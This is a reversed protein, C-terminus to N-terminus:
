DFEEEGRESAEDAGAEIAAADQVAQAESTEEGLHFAAFGPLVQQNQAMGLVRGFIPSVIPREVNRLADIVRGLRQGKQVRQGLEVESVLLGGANARVWQSDYFIPQPEDEVAAAASIGLHHLLLDIAAVAAGIEQMQLRTPAGVEFTFAPIGAEVAAVRLMGKSGPSHLVVTTGVGRTLALVAPNRLDARIQPLNSRDFSGTHFDVLADCHRVVGEFFASAIRSAMSGRRSGPFFRNLDRRDPLYRTGRQFGYLNLVPVGVVTGSIREPQVANLVRRVIEVGNLEDGHVGAVLCLVPGPQAGHVVSVPVVQDGSGVFQGDLVARTGPLVFRGLLNLPVVLPPEAVTTAEIPALPPRVGVPTPAQVPLPFDQGNAAAAFSLALLACQRWVM